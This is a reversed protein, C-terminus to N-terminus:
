WSRERKRSNYSAVNKEKLAKQFNLMKVKNYDDIEKVKNLQKRYYEEVLEIRTSYEKNNIYNNRIHLNNNSKINNKVLVFRKM